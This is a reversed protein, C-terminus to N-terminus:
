NFEFWGKFTVEERCQSWHPWQGEPCAWLWDRLKGTRMQGVPTGPERVRMSCATVGLGTHPVALRLVWWWESVCVVCGCM